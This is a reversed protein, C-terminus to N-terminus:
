QRANVVLQEGTPRTFVVRGREISRVIFGGVNEGVRVVKAASGGVSCFAFSRGGGAVSTGLVIPEPLPAAPTEVAYGTLRYRRQPASRDPSFANLGVVEGVHIPVIVARPALAADTAFSPPPAVPVPEIQVARAASRAGVALAIVLAGATIQFPRFTLLARMM